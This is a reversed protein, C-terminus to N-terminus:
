NTAAAPLFVQVLCGKGPESEIAIRGGHREVIWRAISLGLGTGGSDRSRAKDARYFRDFVRPLDEPAVGIGTDRVAITVKDDSRGASVSVIGPSPTYTVANSALILILRDLAARSGTLLLPEHPEELRLELKHDACLAQLSDRLDVLVQRLDLRDRSLTEVGADARALVLLDQVLVSTREAERLIDELTARYEDPSRPRRLALEASTRILSTPTRLEHSADATFRAAEQFAAELRDLMENLTESLRQLEDGTPPVDLRRDLERPTIARAAAAIRDVPALARRGIWYGGLAVALVGAPILLLAALRFRNLAAELETTPVAIQVAYPRGNAEIRATALRLPRGRITVDTYRPPWVAEAPAGAPLQAQMAPSCYLVAGAADSIRLLNWGPDLAVYERLDERMEDFTAASGAQGLFQTISSVRDALDQDLAHAFSERLEFWTAATILTLVVGLVAAFWVTLRARISWASV